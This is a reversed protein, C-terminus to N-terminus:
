LQTITIRESVPPTLMANQPPPKQSTPQPSFHPATSPSLSSYMWGWFHTWMGSSRTNLALLPCISRVTPLILTRLLCENELLRSAVGCLLSARSSGSWCTGAHTRTPPPSTSASSTLQSVPETQDCRQLLPVSPVAPGAARFTFLASTPDHPPLAPVLSVGPSGDTWGLGDCWGPPVASSCGGWPSGSVLGPKSVGGPHKPLRHTGWLCPYPRGLSENQLFFGVKAAYRPQEKFLLTPNKKGTNLNVQQLTIELTVWLNDWIKLIFLSLSPCPSSAFPFTALTPKTGTEEGWICNQKYFSLIM